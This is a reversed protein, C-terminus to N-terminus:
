GNDAEKQSPFGIDALIANVFFTYGCNKCLIVFFPFNDGLFMEGDPSGVSVYAPNGSVNWDNTNCVPCPKSGEWKEEVWKEIRQKQSTTWTPKEDASM